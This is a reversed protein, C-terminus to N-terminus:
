ESDSGSFEYEEEESDSEESEPNPKDIQALTSFLAALEPHPTLDEEEESEEEEEEPIQTPQYLATFLNATELEPDFDEEEPEFEFDSDSEELDSEMERPPKTRIRKSSDFEPADEEFDPKKRKGNDQLGAPLCYKVHEILQIVSM